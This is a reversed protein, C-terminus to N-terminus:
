PLHLILAKGVRFVRTRIRACSLDLPVLLPFMFKGYWLDLDEARGGNNGETARKRRRSAHGRLFHRRRGFGGVSAM